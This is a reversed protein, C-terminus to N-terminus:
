CLVFSPYEKKSMSKSKNNNLKIIDIIVPQSKINARLPYAKEKSKVNNLCYTKFDNSQAKPSVRFVRCDSVSVSTLAGATPQASETTNPTM